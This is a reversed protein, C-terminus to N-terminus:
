FAETQEPAPEGAPAPIDYGLRAAQDDTLTLTGGPIPANGAYDIAQWPWTVGECFQEPWNRESRAGRRPVWDMLRLAQAGPEDSPSLGFGFEPWRLWLSSGIPRLDRRKAGAAAHPAHAELLMAAGNSVARMMELAAM